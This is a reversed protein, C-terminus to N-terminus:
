GMSSCLPHMGLAKVRMGVVLSQLAARGRRLALEGGRYCVIFM